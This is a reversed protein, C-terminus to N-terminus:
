PAVANYANATAVHVVLGYTATWADRVELTFAPGLLEELTALLAAGVTDYHEIKVGYQVHRRGLAEVAPIVSELNNIANIVVSLTQMLKRGQEVMDGKFMPKLSADLQFLKAYFLAAVEEPDELLAVFTEQVLAKQSDTLM